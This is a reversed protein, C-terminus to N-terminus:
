SWSYLLWGGMGVKMGERMGFRLMRELERVAAKKEWGRKRGVFLSVRRLLPLCRANNQGMWRLEM